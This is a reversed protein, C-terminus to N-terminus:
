PLVRFASIVLITVATLTKLLLARTSPFASMHTSHSDSFHCFKSNAQWVLQVNQSLNNVLVHLDLLIHIRDWRSDIGLHCKFDISWGVGQCRKDVHGQDEFKWLAIKWSLTFWSVALSSSSITEWRAAKTRSSCTTSFLTRRKMATFFESMSILTLFHCFM